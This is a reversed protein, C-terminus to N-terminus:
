YTWTVGNEILWQMYIKKSLYNLIDEGIRLSTFIPILKHDQYEKFLTIFRPLTENLFSDVYNQRLTSKVEIILYISQCPESVAIVDFEGNLRNSKRKVNESLITIECNFYKEIVPKSAPFIIDEVITGMKNVAEGWKKNMDRRDKEAQEKIEKITLWMTEINKKAWDINKMSWEKYEKMEEKFERMEEIFRAFVEELRDVKEELKKM